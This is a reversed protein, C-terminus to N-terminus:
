TPSIAIDSDVFTEGAVGSATWANTAAMVGGSPQQWGIVSLQDPVGNVMANPVASTVGDYVINVGCAAKWKGAADLLQQITASDNALQAPAGAPNYRWHLPAAWYAPEGYLFAHQASVRGPVSAARPIQQRSFDTP